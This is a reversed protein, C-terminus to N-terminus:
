TDAFEMQTVRKSLDSIEKRKLQKIQKSLLGIETAKIEGKTEIASILAICFKEYSSRLASHKSRELYEGLSMARLIHLDNASTPFIEYSQDGYTQAEVYM